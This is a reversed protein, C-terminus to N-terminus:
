SQHIFPKLFPIVRDEVGMKKVRKLLYDVDIVNKKIMNRIDDVDHKGMEIGRQLIAKFVINDEISIVPVKIGLFERWHIRAIMEDDMFFSCVKDNIQMKINAVIEIQGISIISAEMKVKDIISIKNKIPEQLLQSAKLLDDNHILIDIDTVMRDSGYIYAAAGAFIAWRLGKFTNEIYVLQSHLTDM